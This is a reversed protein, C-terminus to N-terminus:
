APEIPFRALPTYEAGQPKLRSQMLVFERVVTRATPFLRGVWGTIEPSKVRLRGKARAFTVHPLYRRGEPAFGVEACRAEIERQLEALRDLEGELGAAIVRLPGRPPLCEIKSGALGVAGVRSVSALANCVEKVRTEPVEGLFKVTLHLNEEKVWSITRGEGELKAKLANQVRVLGARVEASLEIAIFLRM